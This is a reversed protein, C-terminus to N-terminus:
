HKQMCSALYANREDGSLQKQDAEAKCIRMKADRSRHVNQQPATDAPATEGAALVCGNIALSALILIMKKFM